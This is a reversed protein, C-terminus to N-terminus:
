SNGAAKRSPVVLAILRRLHHIAGRVLTAPAPDDPPEPTSDGAPPVSPLIGAPAHTPSIPPPHDPETQPPASPTPPTRLSPSPEALLRFRARDPPRRRHIVLHGSACLADRVALRELAARGARPLTDATTQNWTALVQARCTAVLELFDRRQAVSLLPRTQWVEDPTAGRLREPRLLTNHVALAQELNATIWVGPHNDQSAAEDTFTRLTGNGRECAGNYQPTYPPSFLPTVQWQQLLAATEHAIFASGNDAKLVLPPQWTRVLIELAACVTAATEDACPQWLLQRGSALDRVSLVVPATGDVPTPPKVFDIAWVAGPVTWTLHAEQQEQRRRAVRRYRALLRALEARAVKPFRARLATLPLWPGTEDLVALVQQRVERPARSVPRGRDSCRWRPGRHRWARLTRESIGLWRATDRLTFGDRRLDNALTVALGRLATDRQRDARQDVLGTRWGATIRRSTHPAPPPSPM